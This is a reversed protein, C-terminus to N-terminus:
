VKLDGQKLEKEKFFDAMYKADHICLKLERIILEIDDVKQTWYRNVYDDTKIDSTSCEKYYNELEQVCYRYRANFELHTQSYDNM